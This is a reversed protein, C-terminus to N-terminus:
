SYSASYASSYVKKAIARIMRSFFFDRYAREYEFALFYNYEGDKALNSKKSTINVPYLRGDAYEYIDFSREFDRLYERWDRLLHGSNAKFLQAERTAIIKLPSNYVTEPDESIYTATEYEHELSLEFNGTCRLSDYVGWSNKFRFYRTNEHYIPDLEYTIEDSITIGNENVLFVKWKAVDGGLLASLGLEAYGTTFEVVTWPTINVLDTLNSTTENAGDSDWITMKLRYQTYGVPPQFAFFLSEKALKDTYRADPSWTLFREKTSTLGFFDTGALNNAVLDERNLGGPIAYRFDDGYSRQEFAGNIKNVFIIRYKCIYDHYTWYLGGLYNNFRPPSAMLLNAYIYEQVDFRVTGDADLSKYESGLLATGNKYVHMLVGQVADAAPADGGADTFIQLGTITNSVQSIDYEPSAVKATMIIDTGNIDIEYAETLELDHILYEYVTECWQLPTFGAEAIPLHAKTTPSAKLTFTREAGNRSITIAHNETVDIDSFRIKVVSDGGGTGTGTETSLLYRM